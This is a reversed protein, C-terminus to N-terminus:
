ESNLDPDMRYFLANCSYNIRSGFLTLNDKSRFTIFGDELPLPTGCDIVPVFFDCQVCPTPRTIVASCRSGKGTVQFKYQQM